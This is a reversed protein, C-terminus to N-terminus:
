PLKKGAAMYLEYWEERTLRLETAKCCDALRRANTTGVITQINAPHRTIWAVAIGNPTSDYKEALRNLVANLEPFKESGIFCGAFMGYQFPSWAQLTIDNLRSYELVGGSRDCGLDDHINVNIGADIIDCHPISLQLQNFLIRDGCYKKMLALQMASQNSVGFYRVKGSKELAEFAEAVEEGDMLTDPRHLLLIDIYETKLRRLSGDVSKLIHEKSFDFCIGPRIACKTQLIMQERKEQPMAEGFIAEAEGAGYIDAHDFFNAGAEMATDIFRRVNEKTQLATIRMCGVGLAPITLKGNRVSLTKM